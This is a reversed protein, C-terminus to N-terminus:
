KAFLLFHYKQVDKEFSGTQSVIVSLDVYTPYSPNQVPITM